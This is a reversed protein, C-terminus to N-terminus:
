KIEYQEKYLKFQVSEKYKHKDQTGSMFSARSNCMFYQEQISNLITSSKTCNVSYLQVGEKIYKHQHQAGSISPHKTLLLNKDLRIRLPTSQLCGSESYLPCPQINGGLIINKCWVRRGFHYKKGKTHVTFLAYKTFRINRSYSHM